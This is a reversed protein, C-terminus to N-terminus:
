KGHLHEKNLKGFKRHYINLKLVAEGIDSPSELATIGSRKLLDCPKPGIKATLLYACGELLETISNIRAMMNEHRGGSRCNGPAKEGGRPPSFASEKKELIKWDGSVEDARLIYFAGAQGLHLDVHEGDSSTVAINYPM